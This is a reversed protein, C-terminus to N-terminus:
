SKPNGAGELFLDLAADLRADAKGLHTQAYENLTTEVIAVFAWALWRADQARIEGTKM